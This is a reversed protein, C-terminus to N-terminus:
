TFRVRSEQFTIPRWPSMCRDEFDNQGDVDLYSIGLGRARTLLPDSSHAATGDPLQWYRQLATDPLPLRDYPYLSQRRYSYEELGVSPAPFSLPVAPSSPAPSDDQATGNSVEDDNDSVLSPTTARPGPLNTTITDVKNTAAKLAQVLNETRKLCRERHKQWHFPDYASKASLKIKGGCRKCQVQQPNHVIAMPDDRLKRERLREATTSPRGGSVSRRPNSIDTPM